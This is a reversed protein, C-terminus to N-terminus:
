PEVVRYETELGDVVFGLRQALAISAPNTQNTVWEVVMSRDLAWRLADSVVQKGYGRRRFEEHTLVGAAALNFDEFLFHSAASVLRDDVFRGFVVPHDPEVYWHMRPDIGSYLFAFADADDADLIRVGESEVPAFTTTDLYFYPDDGHRVVDDGFLDGLEDPTVPHEDPLQRLVESVRPGPNAHTRVISLDEKRYLCVAERNKAAEPDMLWRHRDPIAPVVFTGSRELLEPECGIRFATYPLLNM